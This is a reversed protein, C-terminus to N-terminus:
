ICFLTTTKLRSERKAKPKFGLRNTLNLCSALKLNLEDSQEYTQFFHYLLSSKGIRREGVVNISTPQAAMLRSTIFDLEERRGVFFQPDTIMSGAYFPCFPM